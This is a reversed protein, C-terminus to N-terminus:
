RPSYWLLLTYGDDGRTGVENRAVMAQALEVQQAHLWDLQSYWLKPTCGVTLRTGVDKRAVLNQTLVM